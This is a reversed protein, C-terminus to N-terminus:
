RRARRWRFPSERSESVLGQLAATGQLRLVWYLGSRPWMNQGSYVFSADDQVAGLSRAGELGRDLSWHENRVQLSALDLSSFIKQRAHFYVPVGM